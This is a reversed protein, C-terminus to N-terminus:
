VLSLMQTNIALNYYLYITKLWVTLMYTVNPGYYSKIKVFLQCFILALQIM